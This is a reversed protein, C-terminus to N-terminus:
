AEQVVKLSVNDVIDKVKERYALMHPAKLHTMLCDMDRWKEMVIVRTESLNQGPLATQADVTPVYEICGMEKRVNPVNAKFIQLFEQILGKKIEIEAIVYIM